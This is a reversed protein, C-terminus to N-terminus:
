FVRFLILLFYEQKNYFNIFVLLSFSCFLLYFFITLDLVAWFRPSQFFYTLSISSKKLDKSSLILSWFALYKSFIYADGLNPLLYNPGLLVLSHAVDLSEVDLFGFVALFM